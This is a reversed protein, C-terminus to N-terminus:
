IVVVTKIPTPVCIFILDSIKALDKVSEPSSLSKDIDFTEIHYHKQFVDRVAKGVYGQGVIGINM